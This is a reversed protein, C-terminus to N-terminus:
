LCLYNNKIINFNTSVLFYILLCKTLHYHSDSTSNYKQPKYIIKIKLLNLFANNLLIRFIFNIQLNDESMKSFAPMAAQCLVM